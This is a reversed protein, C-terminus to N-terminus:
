FVPEVLFMPRLRVAHGVCGQHHVQLGAPRVGAQEPDRAGKGFTEIRLQDADRNALGHLDDIAVAAEHRGEQDIVVARLDLLLDPRCLGLEVARELTM